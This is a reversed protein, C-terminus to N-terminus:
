FSTWWNSCNPGATGVKIAVVAYWSAIVSAKGVGAIIVLFLHVCDM